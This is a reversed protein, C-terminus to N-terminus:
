TFVEGVGFNFREGRLACLEGFILGDGYRQGELLATFHDRTRCWELCNNRADRHSNESSPDSAHVSFAIIRLMASEMELADGVVKVSGRIVPAGCLGDFPLGM